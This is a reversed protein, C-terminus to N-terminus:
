CGGGFWAGLYDFLAQVSPIGVGNTTINAIPDSGFWAALYDFIDQVSVGNTKNFDAKCCPTTNNGVANCDALMPVFQTNAGACSAQAVNTQCTTGRCCVSPPQPCTNPTCTSFSAGPNMGLSGCEAATRFSCTGNVNCCAVSECADNPGPGSPPTCVTSAGYWAGGGLQTCVPQPVVVCAQGFVCCAGSLAPTVRLTYTNSAGCPLGGFDPATVLVRGTSNAPVIVQLSSTGGPPAFCPPISASDQLTGPGTGCAGAYAALVAPFESMLVVDYALDSSGSAPLSLFDIDRTGNLASITGRYTTNLALAVVGAAGCTENTAAGCADNEGATMGATSLTCRDSMCAPQQGAPLVVGNSTIRLTFAGTQGAFGFVAVSYSEGAKTPLVLNSSRGTGGGSCSIAADDNSGACNLPANNGLTCTGCYVAVISDYDTAADCTSLTVTTGDGVFRYWLSKANVLSDKCFPTPELTGYNTNDTITAPLPGVALATACTANAAAALPCASPAIAVGACMALDFGNERDSITYPTAGNGRRAFVGDGTPSGANVTLWRWRNFGSTTNANIQIWVCQNATVDLAPFTTTWVFANAGANAPLAPGRVLTTGATPTTGGLTFPGALPVAGPFGGADPLIALTFTEALATPATGDYAGWFCLGSLSGNAAITLNDASLGGNPATDSISSSQAATGTSYSQCNGAPQTCQGHALPIAVAIASLAALCSLMHAFHRQM